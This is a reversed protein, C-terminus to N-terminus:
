NTFIHLKKHMYKIYISMHFCFQVIELILVLYFLYFWHIHSINKEKEVLLQGTCIQNSKFLRSIKNTFCIKSLFIYIELDHAFILYPILHFEPNSKRMLHSLTNLIHYHKQM